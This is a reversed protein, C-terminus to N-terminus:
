RCKHSMIFYIFLFSKANNLHHHPFARKGVERTEACQVTV